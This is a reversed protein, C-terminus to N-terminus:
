GKLEVRNFPYPTRLKKSLLIAATRIDGLRVNRDRFAKIWRLEILDDFTLVDLEYQARRLVPEATKLGAAVKYSYGEVWSRIKWTSARLLRAADQYSYVGTGRM